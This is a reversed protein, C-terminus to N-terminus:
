ECLTEGYGTVYCVTGPPFAVSSLCTVDVYRGLAVPQALKVLAIDNASTADDYDRHTIVESINLLQQHPGSTMLEQQGAMVTWDELQWNSYCVKICTFDVKLTSFGHVTLHGVSERLCM